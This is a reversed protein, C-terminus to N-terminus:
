DAKTSATCTGFSYVTLLRAIENMTAHNVTGVKYPAVTIKATEIDTAHNVTGTLGLISQGYDKDNM